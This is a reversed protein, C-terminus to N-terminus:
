AYEPASSPEEDRAWILGFAFAITSALPVYWPFALASFVWESRETAFLGYRNVWVLVAAALLVLGFQLLSRAVPEGRKLDPVARLFFWALVLVLAAAACIARSTAGHWAVGFVFAVSYPASWLFGSGGIRPALLALAFGALLAGQTFTAMTLALELISGFNRSLEDMAFALVGLGLGFVVVLARASRVARKEESAASPRQGPSLRELFRKRRPLFVASLTTQSLATLIGDLSSIAAALIGAVVLGKWGSPVVDTTFIMLLNEGKRAFLALASPSMPNREYYAYLGVGVFAVLVPVVVGVSSWVIAKRADNVNRCCFLRQAMLQDIGYSAIGGWSSAIVAAWFTFAKAPNLDFDFFDVKHADVGVRWLREFGLDLKGAIVFLLAIASTTFVFFLVFDTWVVAAMGGIWTWLVAFTTLLAISLALTPVHTAESLRALPEGLVIELVLATLYVRSAQSLVGGAAFLLSALNKARTGLRTGIFDYPSYIEREYYAPVLWWAIALRALVSGIVVLQLYAFNGGPKFVLFPV